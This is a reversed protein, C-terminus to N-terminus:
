ATRPPSVSETIEYLDDGLRRIRGSSIAQDLPRRFGRDSWHSAGCVEVLRERSLVRHGRLARVVDNVEAEQRSHAWPSPSVAPQTGGEGPDPKADGRGTPGATTQPELPQLDPALDTLPTDPDALRDPDVRVQSRILAQIQTPVDWVNVSM